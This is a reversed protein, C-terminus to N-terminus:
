EAQVWAASPKQLSEGCLTIPRVKNGCMEVICKARGSLGVASGLVAGEESKPFTSKEVCVRCAERESPQLVTVEYKM